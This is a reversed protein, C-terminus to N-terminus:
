STPGARPARGRARRWTRRGNAAPVRVTATPNVDTSGVNVDMSDLSRHEHAVSATLAIAKMSGHPTADADPVRTPLASPAPSAFAARRADITPMTEATASDVTPATTSSVARCAM